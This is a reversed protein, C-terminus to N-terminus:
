VIFNMTGFVDITNWCESHACINMTYTHRSAVFDIAYWGFYIMCKKWYKDSLKAMGNYYLLRKQEMKEREKRRVGLNM